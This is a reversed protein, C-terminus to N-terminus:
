LGQSKTTSVLYIKEDFSGKVRSKKLRFSEIDGFDIGNNKAKAMMVELLDALEETIEDKTKADIVEGAEELLKSNLAKDFEQSSLIRTLACEGNREIIEPIRDRVLKNFEM